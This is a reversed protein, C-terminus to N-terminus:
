IYLHMFFLFRHCLPSIKHKRFRNVKQLRIIQINKYIINKTVIAQEKGIFTASPYLHTRCPADTKSLFLWSSFCCSLPLSFPPVPFPIAYPPPQNTVLPRPPSPNDGCPAPALFTRYPLSLSHSVYFYSSYCISFTLPSIDASFSMSVITALCVLTVAVSSFVCPSPLLM